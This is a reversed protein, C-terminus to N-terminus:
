GALRKHGDVAARGKEIIKAAFRQNDADQEAEDATTTKTKPIPDIKYGDIDFEPKATKALRNLAAVSSGHTRTACVIVRCGADILPKVHDEVHKEDDGPSAVGVKDGNVHFIASKVEKKRGRRRPNGLEFVQWPFQQKMMDAAIAIAATKGSNGSGCVQLMEAIM